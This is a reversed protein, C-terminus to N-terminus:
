LRRDFFHGLHKGHSRVLDLLHERLDLLELGRADARPIELLAEPDLEHLSLLLVRERPTDDLLLEVIEEGLAEALDRAAELARDLVHLPRAVEDRGQIWPRPLLDRGLVRLVD